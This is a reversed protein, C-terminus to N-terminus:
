CHAGNDGAGDKDRFTDLPVKLVNCISIYEDISLKRKKVMVLSFADKTMGSEKIIYSRKIGNDKLYNNIKDRVDM